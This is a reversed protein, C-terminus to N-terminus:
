NVDVSGTKRIWIKLWHIVNQPFGQPIELISNINLISFNQICPENELFYKNMPLRTAQGEPQL